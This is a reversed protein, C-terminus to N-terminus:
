GRLQRLRGVAEVKRAVFWVLGVNTAWKFRVPAVSSGDM